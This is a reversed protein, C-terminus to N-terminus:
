LYKKLFNVSAMFAGEKGAKVKPDSQIGGAHADRDGLADTGSVLDGQISFGHTCGEWYTKEYGPSFKGGGFIEDALAQKERGFYSDFECSNILLAAKSKEKYTLLDDPCAVRTPHSLITAVSENKLALYIAPQAGVCYGATAIRTVGLARLSAAVEDVLGKWTEPGHRANWEELLFEANNFDTIPDGNFWDPIVTKFGNRAFDDALLQPRTLKSGCGSLIHM